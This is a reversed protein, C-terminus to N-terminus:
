VVKASPTFHYIEMIGELIETSPVKKGYLYNLVAPYVKIALLYYSYNNVITFFANSAQGKEISKYKYNSHTELFEKAMSVNSITFGIVSRASSLDKIKDPDDYYIAFQRSSFDGKLIKKAENKVQGFVTPVNKYNGVYEIYVLNMNRIDVEDVEIPGFYGLTKLYFLFAM